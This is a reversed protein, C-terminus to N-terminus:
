RLSKWGARREVLGALEGVMLEVLAPFDTAYETATGRPVYVAMRCRRCSVYVGDVREAFELHARCAPCRRDLKIRM